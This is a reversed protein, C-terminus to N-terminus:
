MVYFASLLPLLSFLGNGWWRISGAAKRRTEKEGKKRRIKTKRMIRLYLWSPAQGEMRRQPLANEKQHESDEQRDAKPATSYEMSPHHGDRIAPNDRRKRCNWQQFYHKDNLVCHSFVEDFLCCPSSYVSSSPVPSFASACALTSRAQTSKVEFGHM